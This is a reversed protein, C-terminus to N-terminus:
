LLRGRNEVIARQYIGEMQATVADWSHYNEVYARGARGLAAQHLKDELLQLITQAFTEANHAVLLDHGSQAQLASSAQPSAIVPAGCAMAELVKNQIGAGYLIPAAAVTAHQLFPRLDAVTGTVVVDPKELARVEASPDKGVICVKTDPQELWVQPMVDNVLHLAATINAHYSMKGSFVVTAPERKAGNPTFYVLDVGNPLVHVKSNRTPPGNQQTHASKAPTVPNTLQELATKDAPSTVLVHEFQRVLEGEYRQTRKLDLGTLLRGKVSRSNQAAQQFLHSICDVSDWIVPVSLGDPRKLSRACLGYRAGRLHEVHVIDFLQTQILTRISQALAPQWSYVAQLPTRTPLALLTNKISRWLPAQHAVITAGLDRLRDLDAREEENTWLTAVTVQHGRRVLSCILKYPRVRILNPAYPVIFLIKM